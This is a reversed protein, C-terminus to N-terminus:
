LALTSQSTFYSFFLSIMKLEYKEFQDGGFPSVCPKIGGTGIAIIFLGLFDIYPHLSWKDNNTSSYALLIQGCTYLISVSVITKFKGIFGDAILSGLIPSFYCLATFFSYFTTADDKKFNLVNLLYLTLVTRMGYFSFRECFENGIICFTIKPWRKVVEGYTEAPKPKEKTTRLGSSTSHSTSLEDTSKVM